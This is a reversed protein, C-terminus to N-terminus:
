VTAVAGFNATRLKPSTFFAKSKKPPLGAHLLLSAKKAHEVFFEHMLKEYYKSENSRLYQLYPEKELKTYLCVVYAAYAKQQTTNKEDLHFLHYAFKSRLIWADEPCQQLNTALTACLFEKEQSSFNPKQRFHSIIEEYAQQADIVKQLHLIYERQGVGSYVHRFFVKGKSTMWMVTPIEDIKFLRFLRQCNTPDSFYKPDIACLIAKQQFFERFRLQSSITKSFKKCLGCSNQEAFYVLVYKDQKKAQELAMDLNHLWEGYVCCMFSFFVFVFKQM